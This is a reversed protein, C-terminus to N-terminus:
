NPPMLSGALAIDTLLSAVLEKGDTTLRRIAFRTRGDEWYTERDTRVPQGLNDVYSQVTQEYSTSRAYIFAMGYVRRDLTLYLIIRDAGGFTRPLLEVVGESVEHALSDAGFPAGLEIRGYPTIDIFRFISVAPVPVPARPM